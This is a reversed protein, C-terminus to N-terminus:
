AASRGQGQGLRALSGAQCDVNYANLFVIFALTSIQADDNRDTIPNCNTFMQLFFLNDLTDVFGDM